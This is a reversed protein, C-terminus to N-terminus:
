AALSSRGGAVASYIMKDFESKVKAEFDVEIQYVETFEASFVFEDFKWAAIEQFKCPKLGYQKVIRDWVPGKDAMFQRMDVDPKRRSVAVIDWGGTEVLHKLLYRGVVGTAGTVLSRRSAM